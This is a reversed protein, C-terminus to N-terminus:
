FVRLSNAFRVMLLIMLQSKAAKLSRLCACGMAKVAAERIDYNLDKVCPLIFEELLTQLTPNLNGIDQSRM